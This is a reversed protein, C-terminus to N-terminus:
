SKIFRNINFEDPINESKILYNVMIESLYPSLMVGKTGLGNFIYLNSYEPHEGLLPKKDLVTPRIGAFKETIQYENKLFLSLKEKLFNVGKDTRSLSLDKWENSAGVKYTNNGLYVLYIGKKLIYDKPLDDAKINIIEGKSLQFPLYKFFPNETSKYGECFIVKKFSMDKYLCQSNKILLEDYNIKEFIIQQNTILYKEFSELFKHTNVWGGENIIISGFDTNLNEYIENNVTIYKSVAESDLSKDAKLREEENQFVHLIKEPFYFKTDLFRELERYTKDAHELLIETMYTKLMRKGGVPNFMGAAVQSSSLQRKDNFVLFTKNRKILQYALLTGALGQGVILFDFQKM